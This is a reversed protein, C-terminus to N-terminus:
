YLLPNVGLPFCCLLQLLHGSVVADMYGLQFGCHSSLELLQAALTLPMESPVSPRVRSSLDM